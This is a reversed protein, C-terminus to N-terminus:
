RLRRVIILSVRMSHPTTNEQGYLQSSATCFFTSKAFSGSAHDPCQGNQNSPDAISHTGIM